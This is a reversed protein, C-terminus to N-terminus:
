LLNFGSTKSAFKKARVVNTYDFTRHITDCIKVNDTGVYINYTRCQWHWVFIKQLRSAIFEKAALMEELKERSICDSNENKITM